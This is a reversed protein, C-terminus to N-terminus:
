ADPTGRLATPVGRGILSALELGKTRAAGAFLDVTEEVVGQLDFDTEELELKGAEIKSFDLIDNIITLLSEGSTRVTEAYERQEETLDTDMLLGTMGIVGNMPTRIEHSMTALFESKARSASEAEEKAQRLEQEARRRVTIDRAVFVVRDEEMPSVTGAFWVERGDVPLSYETHVPRGGGLARGIQDLLADAQEEPMVEHLTKGVLEDSTKYLLSPNTPAVKLYRGEASLVLIVDDMASFVARLEAESARLAEETRRRKTVDMMSGVVRVPEGRADRVVYARDVVKLYAGDARRFRYEESWTDGGNRLVDEISSLVRERDEPHVREEWWAGNTEERLPYGFMTGFAGNWTQRDSQLDSDWIAENTARAVLRYRQESEYLESQNARLRLEYWWYLAMLALAALFNVVYIGAGAISEWRVASAELTAGVDEIVDGLAGFAPDVREEELSQAEELAGTETLDFVEDVAAEASSLRKRIRVVDENALDLSELHDLGRRTERRENALALKAEPSVEGEDPVEDAVLHQQVADEEIAVLATQATRDQIAQEQLTEMVWAATTAIVVTVM